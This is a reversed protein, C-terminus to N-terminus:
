HTDTIKIYTTTPETPSELNVRIQSINPKEQQLKQRKRILTMLFVGKEAAKKHKVKRLIKKYLQYIVTVITVLLALPVFTYTVILQKQSSNSLKLIYESWGSLFVLNVTYFTELLMDMPSRYISGFNWMIGLIVIGISVMILLNLRQNGLINLQYILILFVRVLLTAGVWWRFKVKYPKLYVCLLHHLKLKVIIKGQKNKMLPYGFILIFIFPIIFVVSTLLAACFLGLHKHGLFTLSGDLLWVKLHAGSSYTLTTYTLIEATNRLFKTFALLIVTALVNLINNGILRAGWMTYWNFYVLLLTLFILYVPFLFQLWTLVYLSLGRYFCVEIGLDLNMWAVLVTAINTDGGQFFISRHIHVINAYLIAGGLWGLDITLEGYLMLLILLPAAAIFIVIVLLIFSNPCKRCRRQGLIVSLNQNCSSCLVGSYGDECQVNLRDPTIISIGDKCKQLPCNKHAIFLNNIDDYGIWVKTPKKYTLSQLSCTLGFKQLFKNCGCVVNKDLEFGRPCKTTNIRAVKSATNGNALHVTLTIDFQVDELGHITYNLYTCEIGTQQTAESQVIRAEGSTVSSFVISPNTGGLQGVTAVPVKITGGPHTSLTVVDWSCNHCENFCFCVQEVDSTVESPSNDWPIDFLYQFIPLGADEGMYCEFINCKELQGGYISNGSVSASNNRLIIRNHYYRPLRNCLFALINFFCFLNRTAPVNVYLGGGSLSATNNEIRLKTYPNKLELPASALWMGGGETGRNNSIINQSGDFAVRLLQSISAGRLYNFQVHLNYFTVTRIGQIHLTSIHPQHRYAILRDALSPQQLLGNNKFHVDLMEMVVEYVRNGTNGYVSVISDYGVNDSFNCNRMILNARMEKNRVIYSDFLLAGATFANNGSFTCQIISINKYDVSNQDFAILKNDVFGYMITIGGAQATRTFHEFGENGNSFKTRILNLQYHSHINDHLYFVGNAGSQGINNNVTCSVIEVYESYSSHSIFVSVGGSAYTYNENFRLQIDLNVGYSIVTNRIVTRTVSGFSWSDTNVIMLNGGQCNSHDEVTNERGYMMDCCSGNLLNLKYCNLAQFNSYSINSNAILVSKSNTIIVGFGLSHIVNINNFTIGDINGFLLGVSIGDSAFFPSREARTLHARSQTKNSMITGCKVFQLDLFTINRINLFAFGFRGSCHITSNRGRMTLNTINSITLLDSAVEKIEYREETFNLVTNSTLCETPNILCQSFVKCKTESQSCSKRVSLNVNAEVSTCDVILIASLLLILLDSM